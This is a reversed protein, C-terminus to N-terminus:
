IDIKKPLSSFFLDPHTMTNRLIIPLEFGSKDGPSVQRRQPGPIATGTSTKLENM